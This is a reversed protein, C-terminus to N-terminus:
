PAQVAHPVQPAIELEKEPGVSVPCQFLSNAAQFIRSPARGAAPVESLASTVSRLAPPTLPGLQSPPCPQLRRVPWSPGKPAGPAAHGEEVLKGPEGNRHPSDLGRRVWTLGTVAVRLTWGGRTGTEPSLGGGWPKSRRGLASAGEGPSLGAGWPLALLGARQAGHGSRSELSPGPPACSLHRHGRGPARHAGPVVGGTLAAAAQVTPHLPGCGARCPGSLAPVAGSQGWPGM